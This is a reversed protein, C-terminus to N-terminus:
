DIKGILWNLSKNTIKAIEILFITSVPTKGSEYASIVSHTTNLKKAIYEQTFKKEKRAIKINKGLINKDIEIKKFPLYKQPSLGILYDISVNFINSIRNLYQLPIINKNLEWLSYASRSCIIKQAFEEQTLGLEERLQKINEINM